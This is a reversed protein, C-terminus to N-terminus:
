EITEVAKGVREVVPAPLALFHLSPALTQGESLCWKLLAKLADAKTKDAYKKKALIWTYTAIPYSDDGEPDTVWARLDDPLTVHTLAAAAAEPTPAVFKGAKNELQAIPQNSTAAYVYEIYGIAGPTRQILAAVGDNKAGGVAAKAPWNVSKGTGPGSKWKDSIASLHQTFVFTTGSGDSRNVPTIDTAPLKVGPNAKAIKPDNWQTIIGLFIGAYAERSLKLEKVDPLNYSLVIHGATVPLLVVNGQAAKIEDDSMAADSAGFDTQGATFAKIGAGSGTSQYNVRINPNKASFDRFWRSYLPAPFSAGSGQLTVVSPEAAAPAPASASGPTPMAEPASKKCADVSLALASLALLSRIASRRDFSRM